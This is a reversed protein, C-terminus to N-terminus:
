RIIPPPKPPESDPILCASLDFLMFAVAKEESSLERNECGQPFPAGPVDAGTSSVHLDTYVARGCQQAPAADLPANFSLYEVATPADPYMDNQITMWETAYATNVAQVNDRAAHIEMEGPTTSAGVNLLWDSLAQGKPFSTNITAISPSTPDIRDNWTAIQRVLNPGASFWSHHWHSAFIRGGLSAYEYMADSYAKPKVDLFGECSLVVIDYKALSATSAWLDNASQFSAGGNLTPAFSDAADMDTDEIGRYLHIRGAGSGDTFESDDIGLRRPLCEMSDAGGTTIAILPLDGEMQNRPLRTQDPDIATDVCRDVAITTQRRWKGIQIVLPIEDGVPVNELQFVGLADTIAAAVPQEETLACSDCSPGEKFPRVHGNPVYVTVNYLPLQGSPDHVVGSVTTSEGQACAAQTCPGDLCTTQQCELGQCANPNAADPPISLNPPEQDPPEQDTSRSADVAADGTNTMQGATSRGGSGSSQHNSGASDGGNTAARSTSADDATTACALFGVLPAATVLALLRKASM